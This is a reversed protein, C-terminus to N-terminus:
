KLIKELTQLVSELRKGTLPDELGNEEVLVMIDSTESELCQMYIQKGAGAMELEREYLQFAVDNSVVYSFIYLPSTFFHDVTIYDRTDWAWSDFGFDYGIRSYIQQVNEETLADGELAYLEHEFLAFASQEVYTSLCDALKYRALAPDVERCCLSLYELGQSHVEAVDIGCASGYCACDATYHGLEHVFTLQDTPDNSPSMFIYPVNYSPLWVEYSVNYKNENYGIDHLGQADLHEFAEAVTGGMAAATERAYRYTESEFTYEYFINWVDSQNIQRYLPTMVEGVQEMYAVVTRPDVSRGYYYEYAFEPYSSYGASEAQQQRVAVLELLVQTLPQTYQEYYYASGYGADNSAEYLEYYRNLIETEQDMLATFEETWMTDAEYADLYGAGYYEEAELKQRHRCVALTCLLRDHMAELGSMAESCWSFEESWYANTMDHNYRLEAVSWATICADYRTYFDEIAAVLADFDEEESAKCCAELQAQLAAVDPRTYKLTDGRNDRLYQIEGAVRQLLESCGSLLMALVVILAVLVCLRRKM